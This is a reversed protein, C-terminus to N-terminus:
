VYANKEEEEVNEAANEFEQIRKELYAVRSRNNGETVKLKKSQAILVGVFAIIMAFGIILSACSVLQAFIDIDDFDTFFILYKPVVFMVIAIGLLWISCGLESGANNKSYDM